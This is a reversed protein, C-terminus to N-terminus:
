CGLRIKCLVIRAPDGPRRGTREVRFNVDAVRKVTEIVEL